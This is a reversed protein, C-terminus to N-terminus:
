APSRRCRGIAGSTSRRAAAAGGFSASRADEATIILFPRHDAKLNITEIATDGPRGGFGPTGADPWRCDTSGGDLNALAV